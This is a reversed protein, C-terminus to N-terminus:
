NSFKNQHEISHEYHTLAIKKKLLTCKHKNNNNYTFPQHAKSSLLLKKLRGDIFFGFRHLKFNIM